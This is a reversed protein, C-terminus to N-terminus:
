NITEPSKGLVTINGGLYTGTQGRAIAGFTTATFWPLTLTSEAKYGSPAGSTFKFSVTRSNIGIARKGKGVQCSPSSNVSGSPYANAVSNITLAKTEPQTKIAVIRTDDATLQYRGVEFAGASM